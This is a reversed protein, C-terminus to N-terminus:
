LFFDNWNYFKECLDNKLFREKTKQLTLPLSLFNISEFSWQLRFNKYKVNKCKKVSKFFSQKSNCLAELKVNELPGLKEYKWHVAVRPLYQNVNILKRVELNNDLTKNNLQFMDIIDWYYEDKFFYWIFSIMTDFQALNHSKSNYVVNKISMSNYIAEDFCSSNLNKQIHNRIKQLHNTKILVPFYSMSHFVKKKGLLYNLRKTLEAFFFNDEPRLTTSIRPKNDVFLDSLFLKTTFLTDTDVFAVHSTTTFNDAWFMYMQSKDFRNFKYIPKKIFFISYKINKLNKNLTENFSIDNQEEEDLLLTLNTSNNAAFNKYGWLFVNVFLDINSRCLPLIYTINSFDFCQSYAKTKSTSVKSIAFIYIYIFVLFYIYNM